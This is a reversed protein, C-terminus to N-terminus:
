SPPFDFTPQDPLVKAEFCSPRSKFDQSQLCKQTAKVYEGQTYVM